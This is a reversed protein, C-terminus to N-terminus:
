DQKARTRDWAAQEVTSLETKKTQWKYTGFPGPREFRVYEGSESAKIDAGEPKSVQDRPDPKDEMRAVGFPTKRYVWKKGQADTYHWAGPESEVAGAPIELPKPPAPKVAASTKVASRSKPAPKDAAALLLTFASFVILLRM